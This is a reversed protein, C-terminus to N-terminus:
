FGFLEKLKKELEAGRLNRALIRGERDILVTAPISTIGYTAGGTSTWGNLDSVHNPWSLGDQRIAQQWAGREKDMSVSFIEFGAEHYKKYMKVVNPNEMRCPRCWSAWFDILVVQGRLDSLRRHQGEPDLMDIEPAMRGPGLTTALRQSLHRVFPHEGYAPQLADRVQEYLELPAYDGQNLDEEFVTVIFAASLCDKHELALTAIRQKLGQLEEMTQPNSLLLTQAQAFLEVNKSGKASVLRMIGREPEAQLEIDVREKPLLILQVDNSRMPTRLVFVRPGTCPVQVSFRGKENPTLTDVPVIQRGDVLEQLYIQANDLGTITGRLTATQAALGLSLLLAALLTPFKM